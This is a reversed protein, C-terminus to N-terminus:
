AWRRPIVQMMSYNVAPAFATTNRRRCLTLTTPVGGPLTLTKTGYLTTFSNVSFPTIGFQQLGTAQDFDPELVLGGTARVGIMAYVTGNGQVNASFGVEVELPANPTIVTELTPSFPEWTSAAAGVTSSGPGFGVFTPPLPIISLSGLRRQLETIDRRMQRLMGDFTKDILPASM